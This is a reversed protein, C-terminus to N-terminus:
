RHNKLLLNHKILHTSHKFMNIGPLSSINLDGSSKWIEIVQGMEKIVTAYSVM